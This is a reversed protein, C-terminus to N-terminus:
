AFDISQEHLAKLEAEGKKQGQFLKIERHRNSLPHGAYKLRYTELKWRRYRRYPPIATHRYYLIKTELSVMTFDLISGFMSFDTGFIIAERCTHDVSVDATRSISLLIFLDGFVEGPTVYNIHQTVGQQGQVTVVLQRKVLFYSWSDKLGKKLVNESTDFKIIRSYHLWTQYDAESYKRVSKYFPIARLVREITEDTLKSIL